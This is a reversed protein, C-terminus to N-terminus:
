AARHTDLWERLAAEIRTQWGKGTAKFSELVDPSLRLSVAVKPAEKPPRGRRSLKARLGGPLDARSLARAAEEASWEPNEDEIQESVRRKSM